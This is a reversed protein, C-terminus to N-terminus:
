LRQFLCNSRCLCQRQRFQLGAEYNISTEPEESAVAGGGLPSFGKHVGTLLQWQDNLDWTLSVGPLWDNSDIAAVPPLPLGTPTPTNSAHAKLM